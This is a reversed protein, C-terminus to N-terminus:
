QFSFMRVTEKGYWFSLDYKEKLLESNNVIKNELIGIHLANMPRGQWQLCQCIFLEGFSMGM